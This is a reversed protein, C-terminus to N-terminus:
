GARSGKWRIQPPPRDAALSALTRALGPPPRVKGMFLAELRELEPETLVVRASIVGAMRVRLAGLLESLTMGGLEPTRAVLEALEELTIEPRETVFEVLARRARGALEAALARELSSAAHSALHTAHQM